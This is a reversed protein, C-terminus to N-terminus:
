HYLVWRDICSITLSAPKIGPNYSGRSTPMAVWELIRAQPIGQVSSGPLAITWPTVLLQFCCLVACCLFCYISLCLSTFYSMLFIFHSLSHIKFHKSSFHSLKFFTSTSRYIHFEHYACILFRFYM